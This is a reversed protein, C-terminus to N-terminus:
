MRFDLGLREIILEYRGLLFPLHYIVRALDEWEGVWRELRCWGDSRRDGGIERKRRERWGLCWYIESVCLPLPKEFPSPVFPIFQIPISILLLPPTLFRGQGRPEGVDSIEMGEVLILLSINSVYSSDSRVGYAGLIRTM